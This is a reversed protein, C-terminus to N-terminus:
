NERDPTVRTYQIEIPTIGTFRKEDREKRGSLLLLSPSWGQDADQGILDRLLPNSGYETRFNGGKAQGTSYLHKFNARKGTLFLFFPKSM